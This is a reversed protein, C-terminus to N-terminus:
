RRFFAKVADRVATIMADITWRVVGDSTYLLWLLSVGIAIWFWVEHLM